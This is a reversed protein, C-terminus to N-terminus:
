GSKGPAILAPMTAIIFAAFRRALNPLAPITCPGSLTTRIALEREVTMLDRCYAVYNPEKTGDLNTLLEGPVGAHLRVSYVGKKLPISAKSDKETHGLGPRDTLHGLTM